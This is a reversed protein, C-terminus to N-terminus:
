RATVPHKRRTLMRGFLCGAAVSALIAILGDAFLGTWLIEGHGWFGGYVYVKFPWGFDVFGDDMTSYM